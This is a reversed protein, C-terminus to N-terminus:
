EISRADEATRTGDSAVQCSGASHVQVSAPEDTRIRAEADVGGHAECGLLFRYVEAWGGRQSRGKSDVMWDHPLNRPGLRNSGTSWFRHRGTCSRELRSLYRCRRKPAAPNGARWGDVM